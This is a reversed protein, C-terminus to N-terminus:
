RERRAVASADIERHAIARGSIVERWCFASILVATM